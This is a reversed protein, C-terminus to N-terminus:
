FLLSLSSFSSSSSPSLFPRSFIPSSFFVALSFFHFLFIRAAGGGGGGAGNLFLFSCFSPWLLFFICPHSSYRAHPTQQKYIYIIYVTYIYIVSDDEDNIKIETCRGELFERTEEPCFFVLDTKVIDRRWAEDDAADPKEVAVYNWM